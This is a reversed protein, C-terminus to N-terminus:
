GIHLHQEIVGTPVEFIGQRGTFPLRKLLPKIDELFLCFKGGTECMAKKNWDEREKFEVNPAWRADAVRATCVICGKQREMEGAIALEEMGGPIRDQFYQNLRMEEYDIKQAAHIAIRQGKLNKFMHHTRTEITKWGMAVWTAWPQHLSIAKMNKRRTRRTETHSM